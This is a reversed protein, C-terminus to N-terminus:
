APARAELADFEAQPVGGDLVMHGIPGLERPNRASV